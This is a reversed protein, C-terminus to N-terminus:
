AISQKIGYIQKGAYIERWEQREQFGLLAEEETTTIHKKCDSVTESTYNEGHM